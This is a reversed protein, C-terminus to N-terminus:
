LIKILKLWLKAEGCFYWFYIVKRLKKIFLRPKHNFRSRSHNWRPLKQIAQRHPHEATPLKYPMSFRQLKSDLRIYNMLINSMHRHKSVRGHSYNKFLMPSIMSFLCSTLLHLRISCLGAPPQMNPSSKVRPKGQLHCYLPM